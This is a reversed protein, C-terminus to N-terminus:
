EEAENDAHGNSTMYEFAKNLVLVAKPIDNVKLSSSTQWDGKKDRYCRQFSVSKVSFKDEGRDYENTFISASCSGHRFVIEPQPM